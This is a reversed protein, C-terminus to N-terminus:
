QMESIQEDENKFAISTASPYKEVLLAAFARTTM